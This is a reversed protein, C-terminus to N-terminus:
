NGSENQYGRSVTRREIKEQRKAEQRAKITRQEAIQKLRKGQQKQGREKKNM